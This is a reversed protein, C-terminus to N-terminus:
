ELFYVSDKLSDKPLLASLPPIIPFLPKFNIPKNPIKKPLVPEM